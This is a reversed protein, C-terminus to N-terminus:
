HLMSCCVAVCMVCQLVSCCVAVCQLVSCCVAVCQLVSCCVYCVAAGVQKWRRDVCAVCQVRLVSCVCCVAGCRRRDVCAVCQVAGDWVAVCQGCQMAAAVKYELAGVQKWCRAVCRLM